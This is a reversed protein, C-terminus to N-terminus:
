PQGLVQSLFTNKGKPIMVHAVCAQASKSVKLIFKKKKKLGLHAILGSFLTGTHVLKLLILPALAQACKSMPIVLVCGSSVSRSFTGESM